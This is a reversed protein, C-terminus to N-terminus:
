IRGGFRAGREAGQRAATRRGRKELAVAPTIEGPEGSHPNPKRRWQERWVAWLLLRTTQDLLAGTLPITQANQRPMTAAYAAACSRAALPDREDIM